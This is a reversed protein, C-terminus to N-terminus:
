NKGKAFHYSLFLQVVYLASYSLSFCILSVRVGGFCVGAFISIATSIMLSIQWILDYKQKEAIVFVYSLPSSVFRFFFLISLIRTYEGATQWQSGFVAAFLGPAFLFLLVSPIISVIVLSNFTKVYISRCNGDRAYDASARQKFVDLISNAILGIPIGMVRQSLAYFGLAADGFFGAFLFVVMENSFTNMFDAPISFRPFNKYRVLVDKMREYKIAATEHNKSKWIRWGLMATAATQGILTGGILGAGGARAAGFGIKSISTLSSGYVKNASLAKFMKKRVAWAILVNTIGALFVTVPVLYLWKALGPNGFLRAIPANFIFFVILASVSVLFAIVICFAAINVADEDKEPLVIALEYRATAIIALVSAISTYLAFIGYDRPDYLRTIVPAALMPIAQALITGAM